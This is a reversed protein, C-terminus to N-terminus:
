CSLIRPIVFAQSMTSMCRQEWLNVPLLSSGGVDM